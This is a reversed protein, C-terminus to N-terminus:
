SLNTASFTANGSKVEVQQMTKRAAQSKWALKYYSKGMLLGFREPRQIHLENAAQM